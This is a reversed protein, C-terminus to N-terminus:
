AGVIFAVAPLAAGFTAAVCDGVGFAQSKCTMGTIILEGARRAAGGGGGGSQHTRALTRAHTLAQTTCTLAIALTHMRTRNPAHTQAHTCLACM